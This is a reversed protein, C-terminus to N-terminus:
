YQDCFRSDSIHFRVGALVKIRAPSLYLIFGLISLGFIFVAVSSELTQLTTVPIHPGHLSRHPNIAAIPRAPDIPPVFPPAIHLRPHSRLIKGVVPLQNFSSAKSVRMLHRLNGKVNIAMLQFTM